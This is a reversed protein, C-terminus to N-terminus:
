DDDDDDDDKPPNYDWDPHSPTSPTDDDDDPFTFRKIEFEFEHDDDFKEDVEHNISDLWLEFDWDDLESLQQLESATLRWKSGKYDNLNSDDLQHLLWAEDQLLDQQQWDGWEDAICSTALLGALIIALKM